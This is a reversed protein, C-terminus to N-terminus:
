RISTSIQYKFQGYSWYLLGKNKYIARGHLSWDMDSGGRSFTKMVQVDIPSGIGASQDEPVQWHSSSQKGPINTSTSVVVWVPWFDEGTEHHCNWSLSGVCLAWFPSSSFLFPFWVLIEIGTRLYSHCKILSSPSHYFLLCYFFLFLPLFLFPHSSNVTVGCHRIEM